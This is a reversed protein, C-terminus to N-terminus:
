VCMCASAHVDSVCRHSIACFLIVYVVLVMVLLSGDDGENDQAIEKEKTGVSHTM